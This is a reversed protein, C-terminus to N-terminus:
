SPSVQLQVKMGKSSCFIYKPNLTSELCGEVVEEQRKNQTLNKHPIREEIREFVM